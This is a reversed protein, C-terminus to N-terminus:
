PQTKNFLLLLIPCSFAENMVNRKEGKVSINSSAFLVRSLCMLSNCIAKNLQTGLVKNKDDCCRRWKACENWEMGLSKSFFVFASSM